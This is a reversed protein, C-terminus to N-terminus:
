RNGDQRNRNLAAAILGADTGHEDLNFSEGKPFEMLDHRTIIEMLQFNIDSIHENSIAWSNVDRLYIENAIKWRKHLEDCFLIDRYTEIAYRLMSEMKFIKDIRENLIQRSDMDIYGNEMWKTALCKLISNFVSPLITGDPVIQELKYVLSGRSANIFSSCFGLTHAPDTSLTVAKFLSGIAARSAYNPKVPKSKELKTDPKGDPKELAM